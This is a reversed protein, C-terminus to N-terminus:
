GYGREIDKASGGFLQNLCYQCFQQTWRSEIMCVRGLTDRGSYFVAVVIEVTEEDEGCIRCVGPESSKVGIRVLKIQDIIEVRDSTLDETTEMGNMDGM